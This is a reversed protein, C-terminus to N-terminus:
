DNGIASVCSNMAKTILDTIQQFPLGIEACQVGMAVVADVLGDTYDSEELGNLCFNAHRHLVNHEFPSLKSM